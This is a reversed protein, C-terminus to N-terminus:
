VDAQTPPLHGRRREFGFLMFFVLSLLCIFIGAAIVGLGVSDWGFASLLNGRLNSGTLMTNRLQTVADLRAQADALAEENGAERAAAVEARLAGQVGGLTAYAEGPYGAGEAAQQMHLGIYESYARAQMGTALPQGAYGEMGPLAREAETMAEVAPFSIQQAALEQQINNRIFMGMGIAFAGLLLAAIALTLWLILVRAWMAASLRHSLYSM